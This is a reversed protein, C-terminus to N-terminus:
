RPVFGMAALKEGVKPDELLRRFAAVAAETGDSLSELNPILFLPLPCVRHLKPAEHCAGQM